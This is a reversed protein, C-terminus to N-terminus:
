DREFRWKGKNDKEAGVGNGVGNIGHCFKDNRSLFSTWPFSMTVFLLIVLSVHWGVIGVVSRGPEYM